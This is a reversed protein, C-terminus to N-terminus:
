TISKRVIYHRTSSFLGFPKVSAAIFKPEVWYALNSLSIIFVKYALARPM